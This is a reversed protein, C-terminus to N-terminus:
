NGAINGAEPATPLRGDPTLQNVIDPLSATLRHLLEERSLGTKSELETLTQDGLAAGLQDSQVPLNAGPAIWSNATHAQGANKLQGVLDSLGGSLTTGLDGSKFLQGLESLLGGSAPTTPTPQSPSLGNIMESIKGRNQYGAVAALGLLAVLSPMTRSM